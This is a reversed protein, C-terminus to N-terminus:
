SIDSIGQGALRHGDLLMLSANTGLGRLNIGSNGSDNGGDASAVGSGIQSGQQMMTIIEASDRVPSELLDERSINLVQSGVPAVGRIGTGTVTGTVVVEELPSGEQAQASAAGIAALVSSALICVHRAGLPEPSPRQRLSARVAGALLSKMVGGGTESAELAAHCSQQSASLMAIHSYIFLGQTGSSSCSS